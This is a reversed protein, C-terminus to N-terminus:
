VRPTVSSALEANSHFHIDLRQPRKIPLDTLCYALAHHSGLAVASPSQIVDHKCSFSRQFYVLNGYRLGVCTDPILIRLRTLSSEM